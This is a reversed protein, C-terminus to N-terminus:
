AASWAKEEIPENHFDEVAAQLDLHGAVVAPLSFVFMRSNLAGCVGCWAQM